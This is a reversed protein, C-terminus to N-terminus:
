PLWRRLDQELAGFGVKFLQRLLDLNSALRRAEEVARTTELELSPRDTGYVDQKLARKDFPLKGGQLGDIWARETVKFDVGCRYWGEMAPVALGVAFSIAKRGALPPLQAAAKGLARRMACLRCKDDAACEQDLAGPHPCANSDVVVVLGEAETRYHLHKLVTPAIQLVSPWGRSRLAPGAIPVTEIGLVADVLVRLASEDAPSESLIAYKM